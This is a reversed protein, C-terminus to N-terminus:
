SEPANSDVEKEVTKEDEAFVSKIDEIISSVGAQEAFSVLVEKLKELNPM